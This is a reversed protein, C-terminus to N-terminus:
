SVYFLLYTMICIHLHIFKCVQLLVTIAATVRVKAEIEPGRLKERCNLHIADVNHFLDKSSYSIVLLTIIPKCSLNM